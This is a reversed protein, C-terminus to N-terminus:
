AWTGQGERVLECLAPMDRDKPERWAVGMCFRSSGAAKSYRVATIVEDNDLLKGAKLSSKAFASQGCYDCDEPCGGTKISLLTSLQIENPRHWTRHICQAKFLLDLLPKDFLALIESTTRVLRDSM